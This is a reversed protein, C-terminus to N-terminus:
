FNEETLIDRTKSTLFPGIQVHKASLSVGCCSRGRANFLIVNLFYSVNQHKHKLPSGYADLRVPSLLTTALKESPM